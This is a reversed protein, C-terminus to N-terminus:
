DYKFIKEKCLVWLTSLTEIQKEEWKNLKRRTRNIRPKSIFCVKGSHPFLEALVDFGFVCVAFAELLILVDGFDGCWDKMDHEYQTTTPLTLRIQLSTFFDGKWALNYNISVANLFYEWEHIFVPWKWRNHLYVTKSDFYSFFRDFYRPPAIFLRYDDEFM